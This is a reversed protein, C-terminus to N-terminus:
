FIIEEKSWDSTFNSLPHCGNSTEIFQKLFDEGHEWILFIDNIYIYIYIYIYVYITMLSGRCVSHQFKVSALHAYYLHGNINHEKSLKNLVRQNM